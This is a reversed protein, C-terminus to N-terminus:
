LYTIQFQVIWLIIKIKIKNLYNYYNLISKKMFIQLKYKYLKSDM